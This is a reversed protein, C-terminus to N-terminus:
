GPRRTINVLRGALSGHPRVWVSAPQVARGERAGYCAGCDACNTGRTENVCQFDRDDLPQASAAVRFTRWGMEKAEVDQFANDVSAMCLHRLSQAEQRRWQHTYGIHSGCVDALMQWVDTPVAAPDGYAGLRLMRGEIADFFRDDVAGYNGRKYAKWINWPGHGLNVYCAGGTHHRHTCDGCVSEDAGDRAADTPSVDSRMIYSQVVSGTKRNVYKGLPVILAVPGGDLLSPGEWVVAGKCATM